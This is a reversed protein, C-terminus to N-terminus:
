FLVIKMVFEPMHHGNQKVCLVFSEMRAISAVLYVIWVFEEMIKEMLITNMSTIVVIQYM